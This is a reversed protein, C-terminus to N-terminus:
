IQSDKFSSGEAESESRDMIVQNNNIATESRDIIVQKNDTTESNDFVM